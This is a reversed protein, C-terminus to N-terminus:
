QKVIRSSQATPPLSVIYKDLQCTQNGQPRLKTLELGYGGPKLTEFSEEISVNRSNIEFNPEEKAFKFYNEELENGLSIDPNGEEEIQSQDSAFRSDM